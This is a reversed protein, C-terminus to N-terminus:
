ARRRWPRSWCSRRRSTGPRAWSGALPVRRSWCRGRPGRLCWCRSPGPRRDRGPFRANTVPAVALILFLMPDQRSFPPMGGMVMVEILSSLLAALIGAIAAAMLLAERDGHDRHHDDVADAGPRHTAKVALWLALPDNRDEGLDFYESQLVVSISEESLYKM